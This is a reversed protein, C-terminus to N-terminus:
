VYMILKLKIVRYPPSNHSSCVWFICFGALFWKKPATLPHSPTSFDLRGFPVDLVRVLHIYWIKIEKNWKFLFYPLFLVKKLHFLPFIMGINGKRISMPLQNKFINYLRRKTYRYSWEGRGKLSLDCFKTRDTKLVFTVVYTLKTPIRAINKENVKIVM